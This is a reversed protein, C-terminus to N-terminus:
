ELDVRRRGAVLDVDVPHAVVATVAGTELGADRRVDRDRLVLWRAVGVGRGPQGVATVPANRRAPSYWHRHHGPNVERVNVAGVPRGVLVLDREHYTVVGAM